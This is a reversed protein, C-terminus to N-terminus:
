RPCVSILVHASVNNAGGDSTVIVTEGRQVDDWIRTVDSPTDSVETATSIDVVGGAGVGANIEITAETTLSTSPDNFTVPSASFYDGAFFRLVATGSPTGDVTVWVNDIFAKTIPSVSYRTAISSLGLTYQLLAGGLCTGSDGASGVWRGTGDGAQRQQVRGQAPLALLCVLAALLLRKM